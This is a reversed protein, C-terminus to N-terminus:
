PNETLVQRLLEDRGGPPRRGSRSGGAGRRTMRVTALCLEQPPRTWAPNQHQTTSGGLLTAQQKKARVTEVTRVKQLYVRQAKKGSTLFPMYRWRTARRRQEEPTAIAVRQALSARLATHETCRPLQWKLVAMRPGLPRGPPACVACAPPQLERLGESSVSCGLASRVGAETCRKKYM